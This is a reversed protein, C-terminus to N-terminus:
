LEKILQGNPLMEHDPLGIGHTNQKHVKLFYKPSDCQVGGIQTGGGSAEMHIGHTKM